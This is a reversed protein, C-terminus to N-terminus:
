RTEINIMTALVILGEGSDLYSCDLEFFGTEEKTTLWVEDSIKSKVLCIDGNEIDNMDFGNPLNKFLAIELDGFFPMFKDSSFQLGFDFDLASLSLLRRRNIELDVPSHIKISDNKLATVFYVKTTINDEETAKIYEKLMWEINKQYRPLISQYLKCDRLEKLHKETIKM